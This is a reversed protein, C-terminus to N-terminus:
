IDIEISEGMYYVPHKAFIENIHEVFRNTIDADLDPIIDDLYDNYGENEAIEALVNSLDFEPINKEAINVQSNRDYKYILFDAKTMAYFDDSNEERKVCLMTDDSLESLKKM